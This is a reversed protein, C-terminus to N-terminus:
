AIESDLQRRDSKNAYQADIIGKGKESFLGDNFALMVVNHCRRHISRPTRPSLDEMLTAVADETFPYTDPLDLSSFEQKDMRYQELLEQVYEVGEDCSPEEFYIYKTVRDMLAKGLVVEIPEIQPEAFTFNIFMTFYRPLSDFLDRLGRSLPTYERARFLTLDEAEDLWLFVRNHLTPRPDRSLGIFCQIIASLVRFRDRLSRINRALSVKLLQSSTLGTLFYVNLLQQSQGEEEGGLLWIARGLEESETLNQIFSLAM